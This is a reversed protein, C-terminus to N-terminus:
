RDYYPLPKRPDVLVASGFDILKVTREADFAINEDKLDRHCRGMTGLYYVAEIVQTFVYEAKGEPM